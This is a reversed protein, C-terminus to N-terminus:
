DCGLDDMTNRIKSADSPDAQLYQRFYKCAAAKNGMQKQAMGIVRYCPHHDARLARQCDGIAGAHDGRVWKKTASQFLEKAEAETVENEAGGGTGASAGTSPQDNSDTEPEAAGGRAGDDTPQDDSAPERDDQGAAAVEESPEPESEPEEDEGSDEELKALAQKAEGKHSQYKMALEAKKRAKESDGEEVAQEIEGILGDLAKKELNNESALEYFVSHEPIESLEELVEAYEEDELANEAGQYRQRFPQERKATSLLKDIKKSQEPSPELLDRISELSGIAKDLKGAEIEREAQEIKETVKKDSSGSEEQEGSEEPTTAAAQAEQGEGGSEDSSSMALALGIGAGLVVVAIGALAIPQLGLGGAEDSTEEVPIEESSSQPTFVYNEGPAVFRFKVHGLEVVDGRELHISKYEDGDVKLGNRSNLDVIKYSEHGERVVKAHTSSVSRHDIIIDCDESRGIVMEKQDLPFKQGAFNSSIVVLEAPETQIVETEARSSTEQTASPPATSEPESGGDDLESPATLSPSEDPEEREQLKPSIEAAEGNVDQGNAADAKEPRLTLRYDGIVVVDGENFEAREEIKKGNKKVGYRAEVDEVFVRGNSQVLRAHRRSVNRETLRITNGEKRGITIEDRIVPVVSRNGEDDEILLKM